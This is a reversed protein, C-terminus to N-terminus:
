GIFPPLLHIWGFPAYGGVLEFHWPGSTKKVWAVVLLIIVRVVIDASKSSVAIAIAPGPVAWSWGGTSPSTNVAPSNSVLAEITLSVSALILSSVIRRITCV